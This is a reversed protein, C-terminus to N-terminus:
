LKLFQFFYMQIQCANSLQACRSLHFRTTCLVHFLTLPWRPWCL